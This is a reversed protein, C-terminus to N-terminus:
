HTPADTDIDVRTLSVSDPPSGLVDTLVQTMVACALSQFASEVAPSLMAPSPARCLELGLGHSEGDLSTVHAYTYGDPEARVEIGIAHTKTPV